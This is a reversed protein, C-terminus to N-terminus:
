IEVILHVMNRGFIREQVVSRRRPLKSAAKANNVETVPDTAIACSLTMLFAGTPCDSGLEPLAM